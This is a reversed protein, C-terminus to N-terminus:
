YSSTLDHPMGEFPILPVGGCVGKRREREEQGHLVTKSDHAGVM